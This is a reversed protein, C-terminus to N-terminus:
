RFGGPLENLQQQLEIISQELDEFRKTQQPTQIPVPVPFQIVSQPPDPTYRSTVCEPELEATGILWREVRAQWCTEMVLPQDEFDAPFPLAAWWELTEPQHYRTTETGDYIFWDSWAPTFINRSTDQERLTVKYRGTFTESAAGDSYVVWGDEYALDAYHVSWLDDTRPLNARSTVYASMWAFVGLGVVWVLQELRLFHHHKKNM